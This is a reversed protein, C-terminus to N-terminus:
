TTVGNRQGKWVGGPTQIHLHNNDPREPYVKVHACVTPRGDATTGYLFKRNIVRAMEHWEAETPDKDLGGRGEWHMRLDAGRWSNHVTPPNDMRHISTVTIEKNFRHQMQLNVWLLLAQLAPNHRSLAYFERKVKRTKFKM